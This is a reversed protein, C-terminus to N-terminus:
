RDLIESDSFSLNDRLLVMKNDVLSLSGKQTDLSLDVREKKAYSLAALIQSAPIEKAGVSHAWKVIESYVGSIAIIDDLVSFTIGEFRWDDRIIISKDSTFNEIRFYLNM